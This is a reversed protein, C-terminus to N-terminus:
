AAPAASDAHARELKQKLVQYTIQLNQFKATAHPDNPNKDPHLELALKIYAKKVESYTAGPTLGLEGYLNNLYDSKGKSTNTKKSSESTKQEFKRSSGEFKKRSEEFMKEYGKFAGKFINDSNFPNGHSFKPYSYTHQARNSGLNPDKDEAKSSSDAFKEKWIKICHEHYNRRIKHGDLIGRSEDEKLFSSVSFSSISGLKLRAYLGYGTISSESSKNELAVYATFYVASIRELIEKGFKINKEYRLCDNLDTISYYAELKHNSRDYLDTFLDVLDYFSIKGEYGQYGIMCISDALGFPNFEIEMNGNALISNFNDLSSSLATQLQIM